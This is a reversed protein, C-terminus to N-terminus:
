SGVGLDTDRPLIDTVTVGGQGQGQDPLQHPGVSEVHETGQWLHLLADESMVREYGRGSRKRVDEQGRESM